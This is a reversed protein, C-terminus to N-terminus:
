FPQHEFVQGEEDLWRHIAMGLVWRPDTQLTALWPAEPQACKACTVRVVIESGAADVHATLQGGCPESVAEFGGPGISTRVVPAHCTMTM